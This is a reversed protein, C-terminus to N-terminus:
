DRGGHTQLIALSMATAPWSIRKQITTHSDLNEDSGMDESGSSEDLDLNEMMKDLEEVTSGKAPKISVLSNVESSSGSSTESAAAITHKGASPGSNILYPLRLSGLSGVCVNFSGFTLDMEQDLNAFVPALTPPDKQFDVAEFAIQIGNIKSNSKSSPSFATLNM